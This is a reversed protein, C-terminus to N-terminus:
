DAGSRLQLRWDILVPSELVTVEMKMNHQASSCPKVRNASTDDKVHIVMRKLMQM